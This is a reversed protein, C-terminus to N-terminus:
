GPRWLDLRVPGLLGAAVLEDARSKFHSYNKDGALAKAILANRQPPILRIRITNVGPRLHDAIDTKFPHYALRAVQEDNVFVEAAGQVLGLDLVACENDGTDNFEVIYDAPGDHHRMSDLARWDELASLAITQRSVPSKLAWKNLALSRQAATCAPKGVNQPRELGDIIFRSGFPELTLAYRGPETSPLDTIEGTMPNFVWSDRGAATSLELELDSNSISAIFDIRSDDSVRRGLRRAPADAAFTLAPSLNASLASLFAGADPHFTINPHRRAEAIAEAILKKQEKINFYGPPAAPTAGIFHINAGNDALELLRRLDEAPMSEVFPVVIAEYAGGSAPLQRPTILDSTLAHSNFWNWTVGRADIRHTLQRVHHLWEVEHDQDKKASENDSDRGDGDQLPRLSVPDADPLHAHFLHENAFGEGKLVSPFGLFPYYLMLDYEPAGQRLLYHSRAIYENLPKIDPWYANDPTANFTFSLESSFTTSPSSWPYWKMATADGADGADHPWPHYTVGHYHIQNVGNFLVKDAMVKLRRPTFSYDRDISVFTEAAVIPRGYLAGAASALKLFLDTGGAYLQETQPIDLRGMARIADLKLGYVEGVSEMDRMNAWDSMEGLYREIFLDSVTLDYDHRIREDHDTLIYLPKANIGLSHAAFHHRGEVAIAPLLPELRYGRRKEFEAFFDDTIHTNVAFEASDVFVGRLVGGFYPSLGTEEGFSYELHRRVEGVDFHDLIFGGRPYASTFGSALSASPRQYAGIVLWQGFPADWHLVGDEDVSQTIDIVSDPDLKLQDTLNFIRKSRKGGVIKAALVAQFRGSATTFNVLDGGGVVEGFLLMYDAYTPKPKPLKRKITRGGKVTMEVISLDSVGREAPIHPGNAPWGSSEGLDMQMGREELMDLVSRLKHYYDQTGVTHVREAISKDINAGTGVSFAEHEFGAFGLEHLQDIQQEAKELDIDAGPWWWWAWAGYDQPPALVHGPDYLVPAYSPTDGQRVAQPLPPAEVIADLAQMDRWDLAANPGAEPATFGTAITVQLWVFAAGAMAAFALVLWSVSATAPKKKFNLFAPFVFRDARATM